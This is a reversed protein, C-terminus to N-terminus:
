PEKSEVVCIESMSYKVSHLWEWERGRFMEPIYCSIERRMLRIELCSYGIPLTIVLHEFIYEM